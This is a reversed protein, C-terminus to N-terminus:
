DFSMLSWWRYCRINGVLEHSFQVTSHLRKWFTKLTYCYRSICAAKPIYTCRCQMRVHADEHAYTRTHKRICDTTWCHTDLTMCLSTYAFPVARFPPHARLRWWLWSSFWRGFTHLPFLPPQHWPQFVRDTGQLLQESQSFKLRGFTWGPTLFFFYWVLCSFRETSWCYLSCLSM